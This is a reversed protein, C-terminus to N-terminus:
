AWAAYFLSASLSGLLTIHKKRTLYSKLYECLDNLTQASSSSIEGEEDGALLWLVEFGSLILAFDISRQPKVFERAMDIKMSQGDDTRVWVRLMHRGLDGSTHYFQNLLLAWRHHPERFEPFSQCMNERNDNSQEHLFSLVYMSM